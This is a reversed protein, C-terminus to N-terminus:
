QQPQHQCQCISPAQSVAHGLSDNPFSDWVGGAGSAGSNWRLLLLPPAHRAPSQGCVPLPKSTQKHQTNLSLGGQTGAGVSGRVRSELCVHGREHGPCIGKLARAERLPLKCLPGPNGPGACFTEAPAHMHTQPGTLRPVSAGRGQAMPGETGPFAWCGSPFAKAPPCPCGQVWESSGPSQHQRSGGSSDSCSQGEPSLRGVQATPRLM